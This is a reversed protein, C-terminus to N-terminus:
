PNPSSNNPEATNELLVQMASAMDMCGSVADEVRAFFGELPWVRYREAERAFAEPDGQLAKFKSVAARIEEQWLVPYYDSFIRLMAKVAPVSERARMREGQQIVMQALHETMKRSLDVMEHGLTATGRLSLMIRASVSIASSLREVADDGAKYPQEKLDRLLQIGSAVAQESLVEMDHASLDSGTKWHAAVMNVIERAVMYRDFPRKESHNNLRDLIKDTLHIVRFILTQQAEAIAESSSNEGIGPRYLTALMLPEVLRLSALKRRLVSEASPAEHPGRDFDSARM